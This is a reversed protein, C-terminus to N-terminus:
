VLNIKISSGITTGSDLIMFRVRYPRSAHMVQAFLPENTPDKIALTLSFKSPHIAVIYLQDQQLLKQLKRPLMSFDPHQKHPCESQKILPLNYQKSLLKLLINQDIHNLRCLIEGLREGTIEREIYIQNLEDNTIYGEEVILDGLRRRNPTLMHRSPFEHDTKDWAPQATKKHETPAAFYVYYARTIAHFNLINGFFVRPLLLLLPRWDYIRYTAISRQLYREIAMLFVFCMMWYTWPHLNLQEQLSPYAANNWTLLSYLVWFIFVVYSTANAFHTIFGKRDHMLSYRVIWESPWATNDWEQFIIGIIWRAKQRISKMYEMPFLSRTAIVDHKLTLRYKKGFLGTKVWKKRLVSHYAFAPKLHKLRIMLSTRYDETLSHTSFPEGSVPDELLELAHRAFATGVGASPVHAKIAQRVRIDKTHIEAFEDAYLWHTFNWYNVELPFVPIQVMDYESIYQNYLKFSYPHIIDESDHFVYMAFPEPLQKEFTKIHKYIQNLNSAKNTPGPTKNIVCQVQKHKSAVTTVSFITDPDNPYVGVFFYFHNYDIAYVNNILMQIIVDAEHWCPILVAIYQEPKTHTDTKETLVYPIGPKKKNLRFWYYLDIFFDDLGSITFVVALLTTIYWMLFYLTLLIKM